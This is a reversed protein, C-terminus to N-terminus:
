AVSYKFWFGCGCMWKVGHLNGGKLVRKRRFDSYATGALTLANVLNNHCFAILDYPMLYRWVARFHIQIHTLMEVRSMKANEKTITQLSLLRRKCIHIVDTNKSFLICSYQRNQDCEGWGGGLEECVWGQGGKGLGLKMAEIKKLASLTCNTSCIYKLTYPSVRLYFPSVGLLWWNDIIDEVPPSHGMSFHCRGQDWTPM